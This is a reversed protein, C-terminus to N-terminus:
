QEYGMPICHLVSSQILYRCALCKKNQAQLALPSKLTARNSAMHLPLRNWSSSFATLMLVRKLERMSILSTGCSLQKGGGGSSNITQTYLENDNLQFVGAKTSIRIYHRRSLKLAM